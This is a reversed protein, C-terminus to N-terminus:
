QSPPTAWSGSRTDAPLAGPHPGAWARLEREVNDEVVVREDGVARAREGLDLGVVACAITSCTM